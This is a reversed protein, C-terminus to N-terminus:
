DGDDNYEKKCFVILKRVFAMPVSCNGMDVTARTGNHNVQLRYIPIGAGAHVTQKFNTSPETGLLDALEQVAAKMGDEDAETKKIAELMLPWQKELYPLLRRNIETALAEPGRQFGV